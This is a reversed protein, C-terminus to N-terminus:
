LNSFPLQSVRGGVHRGEDAIEAKTGPKFYPRKLIALALIGYRPSQIVSTVEGAPKGDVYVRAPLSVDADLHLGVLRRTIKDYNIQRAIVEQGTYCGKESSIAPEMNLELPTYEETIEKGAAPVGAEIRLMEYAEDSIQEAGASALAETLPADQAAHALIWCGQLFIGAKSFLVLRQGQFDGEALSGEGPPFHIGLKLLMESASPGGVEMQVYEHSIDTVSVKDRFFIRKKLFNTTKLAYGPLTIVGLSDGEDMFVTFVDQVRATPSTLVTEMARGPQLSLLDNTTQRQLFDLRDEGHVRLYGPSRYIYFAARELAAEYGSHKLVPSRLSM